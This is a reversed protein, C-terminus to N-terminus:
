SQDSGPFRLQMVDLVLLIYPYNLWFYCPNTRKRAKSYHYFCLRPMANVVIRSRHELWPGIRVNRVLGIGLYASVNKPVINQYPGCTQGPHTSRSSSQDHYSTNKQLCIIHWSRNPRSKSARVVAVVLRGQSQVLNTSASGRWLLLSLFCLWM